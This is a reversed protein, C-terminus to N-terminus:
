INTVFGKLKDPTVRMMGYDHLYMNYVIESKEVIGRYNLNLSIIAIVSM